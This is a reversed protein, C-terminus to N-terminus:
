TSREAHPSSARFRGRLLRHGIASGAALAAGTAGLATVVLMTARRAADPGGVRWGLGDMLLDIILFALAASLGARVALSGGLRFDRVGFGLAFGGVAAIALAAPVFLLTFVVHIPLGVNAGGAVLGPELAALALGILVVSPGLALGAARGMQREDVVGALRAMHRGWWGGAVALVSAAALASLARRPLLPLFTAVENLAAGLGIGVLLGGM